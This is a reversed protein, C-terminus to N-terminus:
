IPEIPLLTWPEHVKSAPLARLYPLWHKVYAGEPDYDKSQKLTNFFRFGRADNGVGATYNWNGWNSCVDYDVLLSEFWEAGMRWDIGLNKTLFSAVNQRGRNSMYGTAALEQMNADILPFGTTGKRWRDFSQWDQKWAINLDQLGSQRFVRNGHKACVFRFYDRWLLEFVLWYTSDNRVREAEYQQIQEYIYRPSLCGLALWASFKSSYDAGLMGNRTEKYVKLCDHQWIYHNVRNFGGTEGGKFVLVARDDQTPVELGFAAMQPLLGVEIEPLSPLKDPSRLTPQVTSQQEVQKRFHTFLEPLQSVEFPLDDPHFLTHGWFSTFAVNLADLAHQLATEVRTEEATVERHYYVATIGLQKVLTPIVAEPLGRRLVLDSGIAQLSRRLDAVSELLFQTRFAGTKPFGFSTQGFQRPDFCYLPVIQGSAAQAKEVAVYLPEHDHLRLDNRFWLLIKTQTM